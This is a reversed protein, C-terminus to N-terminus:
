DNVTVFINFAIVTFSDQHLVILELQRSGNELLHKTKGKVSGVAQTQADAVLLKGDTESYM